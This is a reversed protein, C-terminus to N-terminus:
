PGTRQDADAIEERLGAAVDRELAFGFDLAIQTSGAGVVGEAFLTTLDAPVSGQRLAGSRRAAANCSRGDDGAIHLHILSGEHASVPADSAIEAIGARDRGTVRDPACNYS